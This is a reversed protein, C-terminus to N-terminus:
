ADDEKKEEFQKIMSVSDRFVVIKGERLAEQWTLVPSDPRVFAVDEIQTIKRGGNNFYIVVKM